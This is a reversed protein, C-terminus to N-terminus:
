PSEGTSRTLLGVRVGDFKLLPPTPVDKVGDKSSTATVPSAGTRRTTHGNQACACDGRM